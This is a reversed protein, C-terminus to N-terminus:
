QEDSEVVVQVNNNFDEEQKQLRIIKNKYITIFEQLKSLNKLDDQDADLKDRLFGLVGSFDQQNEDLLNMTDLNLVMNLNAEEIKSKITNAFNRM